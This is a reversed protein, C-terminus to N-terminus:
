NKNKMRSIKWKRMLFALLITVAFIAGAKLFFITPTKDVVIAADMVEQHIKDDLYKEIQALM